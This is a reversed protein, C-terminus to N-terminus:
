KLYFAINIIISIRITWFAKRILTRIKKSFYTSVAPQNAFFYSYM